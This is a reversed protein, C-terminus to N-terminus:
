NGMQATSEFSWVFAGIFRLIKTLIQQLLLYVFIVVLNIKHGHLSKSLAVLLFLKSRKAGGCCFIETVDKYVQRGVNYM